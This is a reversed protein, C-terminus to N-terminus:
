FKLPNSMLFALRSCLSHYYVMSVNCKQNESEKPSSFVSSTFASHIWTIPDATEAATQPQTHSHGSTISRCIFSSFYRTLHWCMDSDICVTWTRNHLRAEGGVGQWARCLPCHRSVLTMSVAKWIHHLILEVITPPNLVCLTTARTNEEVKQWATSTTKLNRVGSIFFSFIRICCIKRERGADSNLAGPFRGM